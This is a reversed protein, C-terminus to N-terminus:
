QKKEAIANLAIALGQIPSNIVNVFQGLLVKISPISAIATMEDATAYKGEFIGGLIAIHDKHTKQFNFVERAPAIVDKAGASYAVALEGTLEPMTGGSNKAVLSRKVLTKKAVMYGVGQARLDSRLKTTDMVNLGHFNVFVVSEAKGLVDDLKASIEQKKAKTIAMFYFFRTEWVRSVSVM